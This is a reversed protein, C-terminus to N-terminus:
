CNELEEKAFSDKNLIHNLVYAEFIFTFFYLQKALSFDSCWFGLGSQRGLAGINAVLPRGCFGLNSALVALFGSRICDEWKVFLSAVSFMFFPGALLWVTSNKVSCLCHIYVTALCPWVAATNPVLCLCPWEVIEVIVFCGRKQNVHSAATERGILVGLGGKIWWGRQYFTNLYEAM